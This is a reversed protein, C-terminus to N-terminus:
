DALHIVVKGTHSDGSRLMDIFAAPANEIGEVTTEHSKVKGSKLAPAVEALFKPRDALHDSVIFGELRLRKGIVLMLNRPGPVPNNYGAIAGCMAVRGHNKLASLAAELQPGGTNDFYVDIGEPAAKKLHDLPDGDKYSFAFDVGLEDRLMAVKAASGASAIVKCGHLKAFQCAASGVAGAGASIFVTEAPSLRAVKWLGVWATLGTVGLIGLFTSPPALLPDIQQLSTAPAVFAERWGNMSFVLAGVPLPSQNSATVIGVASGELPKGIVFPPVYSQADNMRGRMYPDVSFCLNKVLVEGAAPPNLEVQALAFDELRPEGNPRAALRIERSSTPM